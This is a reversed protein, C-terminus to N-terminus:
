KGMSGTCCAAGCVCPTAAVGEFYAFNYNYCLETGAAIDVLAFFCAASSAKAGDPVTWEQVELNPDCGHNIFRAVGGQTSADITKGGARLMYYCNCTPDQSRLIVEERDLIEGVYELVVQGAPIFELTRVGLGKTGTDFVELAIPAESAASTAASKAASTALARM